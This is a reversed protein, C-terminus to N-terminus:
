RTEKFNFIDSSISVIYNIGISLVIIDEIDIYWYM